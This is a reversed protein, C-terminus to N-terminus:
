NEIRLESNTKVRGLWEIATEEAWYCPTWPTGGIFGIHGGKATVVMDVNRPARTRVRQLAEAPLFPDDASNICLLPVTVRDVFYISSCRSYYDDADRFGHIPATAADDFQRFTRASRIAALDLKAGTEPFELALRASKDALSRVFSYVYMPGIGKELSRGGAALDFPVSLAVAAHVIRAGSNEGLWKVLVNGGLSTGVAALAVGPERAALTRAVFDFDGTEGSHYFRPRRNPIHRDLDKPDRACSRFNLATVSWGRASARHALGQMYVSNSSGELGHLLIVRAAAGPVDVHDLLLEDGDPTTLSERRFPVLQRPRALRGWVTQIHPSPLWWAPHFGDLSTM